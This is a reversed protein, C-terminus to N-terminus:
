NIKLTSFTVHLLTGYTSPRCTFNSAVTTAPCTCLKKISIISDRSEVAPWVRFSRWNQEHDDLRFGLIPLITCIDSSRGMRSPYARGRRQLSVRNDPAASRPGDQGDFDKRSQVVTFILNRAVPAYLQPYGFGGSWLTRDVGDIDVSSAMKTEMCMAAFNSHSLLKVKDRRQFHRSM